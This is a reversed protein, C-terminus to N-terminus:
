PLRQPLLELHRVADTGEELDDALEDYDRALDSLRKRVDLQLIMRLLGRTREARRRFYAADKIDRLGARVVSHM